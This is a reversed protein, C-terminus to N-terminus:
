QIKEMKGRDQRNTKIYLASKKGIDNKKEEDYKKWLDFWVNGYSKKTGLDQWNYKIIGYTKLDKPGYVPLNGKSKTRTVVM